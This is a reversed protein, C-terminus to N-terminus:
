RTWQNRGRLWNKSHNLAFISNEVSELKLADSASTKNTVMTSRRRSSDGDTQRAVRRVPQVCRPFLAEHSWSISDREKHWPTAGGLPPFFSPFLTSTEKKKQSRLGSEISLLKRWRNMLCPWSWPRMESSSDIPKCRKRKGPEEQKPGSSHLKSGPPQKTRGLPQGNCHPHAEGGPSLKAAIKM